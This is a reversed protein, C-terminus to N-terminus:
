SFQFQSIIQKENKQPRLLLIESIDWNLRDTYQLLIEGIDWNLRDTYQWESSCTM